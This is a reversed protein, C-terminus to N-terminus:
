FTFVQQYLDNSFGVEITSKTVLVPRKILTPHSTLVEAANTLNLNNKIADDLQRWTTSRKNVLKEMPVKQLWAKVLTEDIGQKRFDHFQYNINQKELWTKAKKVTDCQSIGFLTITQTM